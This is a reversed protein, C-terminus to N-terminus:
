KLLKRKSEIMSVVAAGRTVDSIILVKVVEPFRSTFASLSLLAPTEKNGLCQLIVLENRVSLSDPLEELQCGNRGRM